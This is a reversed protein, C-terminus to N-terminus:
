KIQHGSLVTDHRAIRWLDLSSFGYRLMEEIFGPILAPDDRLAQYIEPHQCLREFILILLRSTTINGATMLEVCLSFLTEYSLHTGNGGAALLESVLDNCPHLKRESLLDSFYQLLETNDPNGVGTLQDILQSSWQYFRQHDQLPLGLMEAIVYGPL